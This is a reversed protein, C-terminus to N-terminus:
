RSATPARRRPARWCCRMPARSPSRGPSGTVIRRPSSARAGLRRGAGRDDPRRRQRRMQALTNVQAPTLSCSAPRRQETGLLEVARHQRWQGPRRQRRREALRSGDRHLVSLQRAQSAALMDPSATQYSAPRRRPDLAADATMQAYLFTLLAYTPANSPTIAPRSWAPPTARRSCSPSRSTPTSSKRNGSDFLHFPNITYDLPTTSWQAYDAIAARLTLM